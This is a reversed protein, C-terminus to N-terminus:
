WSGCVSSNLYTRAEDRAATALDATDAERYAACAGVTDGLRHRARALGVLARASRQRAAARAFAESAPAAHDVELWLEGELEDVAVPWLVDRGESALSEALDRAHALLLELEDREDQAAALAARLAVAAYDALLRDAREALEGRRLMLDEVTRTVRSTLATDGGQALVTRADVWADITLQAVRVDACGTPQVDRLVTSAGREDLTQMRAAAQALAARVAADGCAGGQAAGAALAAVGAVVVGM